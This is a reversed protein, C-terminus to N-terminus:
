GERAGFIAAGVRVRTAGEEIAVEFDASMGMSLERLGLEDRLERLLAFAPRSQEPEATPAPIAMLGTVRLNAWSASAALLAPLAEPSVGGKQAEGSVDVQLQAELLRGAVGARRDLELGLKENDVTEVVDFVPAVHRAKNRQLRGIFHWLPPTVGSALVEAIKPVAEQVYNEGVHGLGARVAEVVESATRTKAVGILEVDGESRGARAAALAIRERVAALREAIASM